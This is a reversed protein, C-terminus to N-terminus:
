PAEKMRELLATGPHPQSLLIEIRKGIGILYESEPDDNIDHLLAVLAANDATVHALQRKLDAVKTDHDAAKIWEGNYYLADPKIEFMEIDHPPDCSIIPTYLKLDTM